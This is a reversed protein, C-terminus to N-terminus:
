EDLKILGDRAIYNIIIARFTSRTFDGHWTVDSNYKRYDAINYQKDVVVKKWMRADEETLLAPDVGLIETNDQKQGLRRLEKFSNIEARFADMDVPDGEIPPGPPKDFFPM